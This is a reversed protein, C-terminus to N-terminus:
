QGTNTDRVLRCGSPVVYNYTSRYVLGGMNAGTKTMIIRINQISWDLEPSIAAPNNLYDLTVVIYGSNLFDAVISRDSETGVREMAHNMIYFITQTQNSTEGKAYTNIHVPIGIHGDNEMGYSTILYEELGAIWLRPLSQQRMPLCYPLILAIILAISLLKNKM